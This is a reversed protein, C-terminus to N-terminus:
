RALLAQDLSGWNVGIRVPKGHRLAVEIMTAFQEDRKAGRGVNGPNIRYKALAEACDPHTLLKHGNYHFDGVLPVDCGMADLRARIRAGAGRGRAHQGHHAGAGLRRPGAGGGPARDGRRRRHRHQDDVARGRARRRRGLSFPPMGSVVRETGAAHLQSVLLKGTGSHIEVWSEQEFRLVIRRQGAAPAASGAAAAVSPAPAVAPSPAANAVALRAPEAPQQAASVFSLRSAKAREDRWELAVVAVVALLVASLAVYALNSRRAGDSFPVPQRLRQALREADPLANGQRRARRARRGGPRAAARLQAGHQARRRRRAAPEV